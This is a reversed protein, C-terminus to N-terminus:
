SEAIKQQAKYIYYIFLITCLVIIVQLVMDISASTFNTEPEVEIDFNSFFTALDYGAKILAVFGLSIYGYLAFLAVQSAKTAKIIKYMAYPFLTINTIPFIGFVATAWAPWPILKSDQNEHIEEANNQANLTWIM